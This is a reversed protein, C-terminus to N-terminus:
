QYIYGTRADAPRVAVIDFFYFAIGAAASFGDIGTDKECVTWQIGGTQKRM